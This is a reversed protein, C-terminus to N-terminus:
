DGAQCQSQQVGFVVSGGERGHRLKEMQLVLVTHYWHKRQLASESWNTFGM